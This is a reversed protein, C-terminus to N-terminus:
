GYGALSDLLELLSSFLSRSRLSPIVAVVPAKLDDHPFQCVPTCPHIVARLKPSAIFAPHVLVAVQDGKFTVRREHLHDPGIHGKLALIWALLCCQLLCRLGKLHSSSCQGFKGRFRLNARLSWNSRCQLFTLCMGESANHVIGLRRRYLRWALSCHPPRPIRRFM